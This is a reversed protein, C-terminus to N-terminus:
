AAGVWGVRQPTDVQKLSTCRRALEEGAKKPHRCMLVLRGHTHEIFVLGSPIGIARKNLKYDISQISRFPVCIEELGLHLVRNLGNAAFRIEQATAVFQGGVWIGGTERQSRECADGSVLKGLFSPRANQVFASCVMSFRTDMQPVHILWANPSCLSPASRPIDM